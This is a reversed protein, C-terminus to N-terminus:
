SLNHFIGLTAKRDAAVDQATRTGHQNAQTVGGLAAPRNISGKNLTEIASKAGVESGQHTASMMEGSSLLGNGIGDEQETAEVVKTTRMRSELAGGRGHNGTEGVM